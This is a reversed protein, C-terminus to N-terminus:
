AVGVYCDGVLEGFRGREVPDGQAASGGGRHSPSWDWAGIRLELGPHFDHSHSLFLNGLITLPFMSRDGTPKMKVQCGSSIGSEILTLLFIVSGVHSFQAGPM